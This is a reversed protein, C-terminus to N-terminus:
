IGMWLDAGGGGHVHIDIFGPSVYNGNADIVQCDAAPIDHDSVESIMGDRIIVCGNSVIGTATIILGNIIKLPPHKM